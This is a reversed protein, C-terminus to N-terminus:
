HEVSNLGKQVAGELNNAYENKLKQKIENLPLRPLAVKLKGLAEHPVKSLGREFLSVFQMSEYGLRNALELQTLGAKTRCDRIAAGIEKNINSM